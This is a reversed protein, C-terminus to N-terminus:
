PAPTVYTGRGQRGQLVGREKLRLLAGRVTPESCKYEEALEAPTPLKMGPKLEGAAIKTEIGEIIRKYLAEPTPSSM